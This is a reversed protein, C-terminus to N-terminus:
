AQTAMLEDMKEQLLVFVEDIDGMGPIKHLKGAPAYYNAVPATKNTYEQVRTKVISEDQDDARGSTKGREIIRRTLEEENVDLFLVAAISSNRSELLQDLAEAQPITRPFGDFIIGRANENASLQNGIMGIVVEDPVLQGNEILEKAKLGLETGEKMEARLMDGTSLHVLEYKDILNQAQTGKGSGPPGFLIINFM